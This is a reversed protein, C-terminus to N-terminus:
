WFLCVFLFRGGVSYSFINAFSVDSLPNIDLMCFYSVCSLVLFFVFLRIAFYASSRFLYKQLFSMCITLLCIFLHEVGGIMLSICVLVVILCWRVGTLIAIILCFILLYQHPHPFFPFRWASNTPLYIPAVAMSFLISTRWFIKFLVIIRDLLEVGQYKDLSFLFM